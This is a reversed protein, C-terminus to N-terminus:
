TLLDRDGNEGKKPKYAEDCNWQYVWRKVAAWGDINTNFEHYVYSDTAITCM